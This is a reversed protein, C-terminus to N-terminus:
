LQKKYVGHKIKAFFTRDNLFDKLARESYDTRNAINVAESTTFTESLAEYIARKRQDLGEIPSNNLISNVRKATKRFYETLRIAAEVSQVGIVPKNLQLYIAEVKTLNSAEYANNLEKTLEEANDIQCKDPHCIQAAQRYLWKLKENLPMFKYEPAPETARHLLELILAFRIVYIELKSYVGALSDNYTDNILETNKAQWQKLEAFAFKSFEIVTPQIDGDANYNLPLDLLRNVISGWQNIYEQPLESDNWVNKKLTEPMAFLLRDTFGNQGKGDRQLENLIGPQMGGCVSVFPESILIPEQSKRDINIPTGSFTQLWFETASGSTYRSFNKIWGALEDSHVGLGRLNFFHRDALAEPTFDSMLYKKFVPKEGPEEGQRLAQKYDKDAKRFLKYSEQDRQSIPQLAFKLPPTKMTGARGILAIYILANEIWSNKVKVKFTNGIAVSAVFLLSGGIFDVPFQLYQNTAKIIQQVIEPFASVPFSNELEELQREADTMILEPNLLTM